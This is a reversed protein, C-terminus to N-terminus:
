KNPIPGSGWDGNELYYILSDNDNIYNNNHIEIIKDNM